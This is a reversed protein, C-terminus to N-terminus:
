SFAPFALPVPVQPVQVLQATQPVNKASGLQHTTFQPGSQVYLYELPPQNTLFLHIVEVPASRQKKVAIFVTQIEPQAFITSISM